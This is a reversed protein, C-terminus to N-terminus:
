KILRKYEREPLGYFNGAIKVLGERDMLLIAGSKPSKILGRKALASLSDTAGARRVGLMASLFEHTLTILDTPVRDHAM